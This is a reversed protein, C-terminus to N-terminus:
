VVDILKEGDACESAEDSPGCSDPGIKKKEMELNLGFTSGMGLEWEESSLRARLVPVTEGRFESPSGKNGESQSNASYNHPFM